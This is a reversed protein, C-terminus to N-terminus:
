KEMKKLKEIQMKAEQQKNKNYLLGMRKLNWFRGQKLRYDIDKKYDVGKERKLQEMESSLIEIEKEIKRQQEEFGGLAKQAEKVTAYYPTGIISGVNMRDSTFTSFATLEDPTIGSWYYRETKHDAIPLGNNGIHARLLNFYYLKGFEYALPLSGSGAEPPIAKLRFYKSAYEPPNLVYFVIATYNTCLEDIETSFYPTAEGTPLHMIREYASVIAVINSQGTWYKIQTTENTSSYVPLLYILAITLLVVVKTKKTSNIGVMM